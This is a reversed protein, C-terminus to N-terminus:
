TEQGQSILVPSHPPEPLPQWHTFVGSLAEGDHTEIPWEPKGTSRAVAMYETINKDGPYLYSGYALFEGDVPATAIDQWERGGSVTIQTNM